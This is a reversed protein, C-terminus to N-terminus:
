SPSHRLDSSILLRGNDPYRRLLGRPLLPVTFRSLTWPPPESFRKNERVAWKAVGSVYSAASERVFFQNSSDLNLKKVRALQRFKLRMEM